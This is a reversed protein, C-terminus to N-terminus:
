QVPLLNMFLLGQAYNIGIRRYREQLLHCLLDLRATMKGFEVAYSLNHGQTSIEDSLLLPQGQADRRNRLMWAARELNRAANHIFQADLSDPLYFEMRGGHATILMSALGYIYAGVRDGQYEPRLALDLAAIDQKGGLEPLGRGSEVAQRVRAAAAAADPAGSKRWERPNRRYLKDMLQYLSALNARMALSAMRDLDTQFIEGARPEAPQGLPRDQSCGGLWLLALGALALCRSKSLMSQIMFADQPDTPGWYLGNATFTDHALAFRRGEGPHPITLCM